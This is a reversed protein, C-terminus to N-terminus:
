FKLKVYRNTLITNAKVTNDNEETFEKRWLIFAIFQVEFPKISCSSIILNHNLHTKFTGTGLSHM